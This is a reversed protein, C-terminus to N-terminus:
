WFLYFHIHKAMLIPSFLYVGADLAVGNGKVAYVAAMQAAVNESRGFSTASLYSSSRPSKLMSRIHVLKPPHM